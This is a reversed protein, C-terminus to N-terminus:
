LGVMWIWFGDMVEGQRLVERAASRAFEGSAPAVGLARLLPAQGALGLDALQGRLDCSVRHTGVPRGHCVHWIIFDM